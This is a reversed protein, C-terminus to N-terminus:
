SDIHYRQRVLSKPTTGHGQRIQRMPESASPPAAPADCAAALDSEAGDNSVRGRGGREGDERESGSGGRQEKVVGLLPESV